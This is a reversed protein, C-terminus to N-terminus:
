KVAQEPTHQEYIILRGSKQLPNFREPDRTHLGPIDSKMYGQHPHSIYYGANYRARMRAITTETRADNDVEAKYGEILLMLKSYQDGSNLHRQAPTCFHVQVNIQNFKVKYYIMVEVERMFRNVFDILLYKVKPNRKCFRYIEELDKRNFNRGKKSSREESWTKIIDLGLEDAYQQTSQEQADLSHGDGQKPDSIRALAVAQEKM